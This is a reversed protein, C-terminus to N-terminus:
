RPPFGVLRDPMELWTQYGFNLEEPTVMLIDDDISLVCDTEIEKYPYFRNSLRNHKARILQPFFNYSNVVISM